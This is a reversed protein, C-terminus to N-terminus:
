KQDQGMKGHLRENQTHPPRVTSGLETLVPVTESRMQEVADSVRRLTNTISMPAVALLVVATVSDIAVILATLETATVARDKTAHPRPDGARLRPALTRLVAPRGARRPPVAPAGM